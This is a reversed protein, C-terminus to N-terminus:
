ADRLLLNRNWYVFVGAFALSAAVTTWWLADFAAALASLSGDGSWAEARLALLLQGVIITATQLAAKTKGMWNAGVVRGHVAAVSRIGTVVLERGLILLPVWFPMVGLHGLALLMTLILIKDAVPDLFTGFTTKLGRSRAVAGDIVDGLMALAFLM